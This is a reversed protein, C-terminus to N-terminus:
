RLPRLEIDVKSTQDIKGDGQEVSLIREIDIDASLVFGGEVDFRIVGGGSGELAFPAQGGEPVDVTGRSAANYEQEIVAIVRGEREEFSLLKNAVDVGGRVVLGRDQNEVATELTYSWTEGVNIADRRFRPTTFRHADRILLVARRVQPNSVERWDFDVPQGNPEVVTLVEVGELFAEVQSTTEQGVPDGASRVELDAAEYRREVQIQGGDAAESARQGLELAIETEFLDSEGRLFRRTSKQHLTLAYRRADHARLALAARQTQASPAMELAEGEAIEVAGNEATSPEVDEVIGLYYGLAMLGFALVFLPTLVQGHESRSKEHRSTALADQSRDESQEENTEEM